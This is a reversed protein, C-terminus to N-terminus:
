IVEWGNPGQCATVEEDSSTGDALTITQKITRCTQEATVSVTEVAAPQEAPPPAVPTEPPAPVLLSSAVFGSAAGGQNIMYWDQGQVKGAVVVTEGEGLQGVTKYDTGPGGRVNTGGTARYPAGILDLPPVQEVRNKLIRVAVPKEAETTRVVEAAGSAGTSPNSWTKAEGTVAATQVSAVAQGRDEETLSCLLQRSIWGGAAAGGITGAITAIGGGLQRGGLNGLVAGGATGLVTCIDQESVDFGRKKAEETITVCGSVGILIAPLVVYRM